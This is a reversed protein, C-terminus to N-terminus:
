VQFQVLFSPLLTRYSYKYEVLRITETTDHNSREYTKRVLYPNPRLTFLFYHEMKTGERHDVLLFLSARAERHLSLSRSARELLSLSSVSGCQVTRYKHLLVVCCGASVASLVLLFNCNRDRRQM